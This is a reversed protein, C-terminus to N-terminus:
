PSPPAGTGGTLEPFAGGGGGGVFTGGAFVDGSGGASLVGGGGGGGSGRVPPVREGGGGAGGNGGNGGGFGGGDPGTLGGGGTGAVVPRTVVGAGGGGGAIVLPTSGHGIVFSGGGGGGGAGFSTSPMGAGGVAIQLVAGSTLNFDGRIQAGRGGISSFSGDSTSLDGGQAGFALIQYIGTEPVTFTVLTGTYDFIIPEAYTAPESLGVAVLTAGALLLQKM